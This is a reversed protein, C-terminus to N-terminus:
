GIIQKISLKLAAQDDASLRGLQKIVLGQELTAMIPKVVSPKLLNANQWHTLLTDAFDPNPRVQSTIAMLIM